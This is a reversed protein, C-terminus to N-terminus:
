PVRASCGTQLHSVEALCSHQVAQRFISVFRDDSSRALIQAARVRVTYQSQHPKCVCSKADSHHYGDAYKLLLIGIVNRINNRRLDTDDKQSYHQSSEHKFVHRTVGATM